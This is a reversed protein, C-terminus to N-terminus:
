MEQRISLEAESWARRILKVLHEKSYDETVLGLANVLEVLVLPEVRTIGEDFPDGDFYHTIAHNLKSQRKKKKAM